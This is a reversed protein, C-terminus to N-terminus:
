PQILMCLVYLVVLMGSWTVRAELLLSIHGRSIQTIDVYQLTQLRSLKRLLFNPESLSYWHIARYWYTHEISDCDVM